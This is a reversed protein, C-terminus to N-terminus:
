LGLYARQPWHAKMSTTFLALYYNHVRIKEVSHQKISPTFFGDDELSGLYTEDAM